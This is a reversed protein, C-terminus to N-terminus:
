EWNGFDSHARAEKLGNEIALLRNYKAVRDTRCPAGSKIMGSETAVALDAIFTDESEGSRHSVVTKYGHERALSMVELTESVTGIQNPKILIANGAGLAIGHSLRQTNTVFLDDGVLQIRNGLRRTIATWSDWDDESLPDEISLIPFDRCLEEMTAILEEGTAYVSRKPMFYKGDHYWESAAVDLALGVQDYHYGAANIAECILTLAERDSSIDPAYGGEDGVGTRLKKETLLKGLRHYIESCWRLAEAFDPAGKPVIMFEQIDVNNAAHAGGNLINMMPVPMRRDGAGGLYRYLSLGHSCAAARAVAMSVALTANAGLHTKNETGDLDILLQDVATQEMSGLRCLPEAIVENINDVAKQVGKGGYRGADGDRLECAEYAGTSAGSPSIATGASGDSLVVQACVTPNGRSDLVELGKVAVISKMIMVGNKFKGATEAVFAAQVAAKVRDESLNM